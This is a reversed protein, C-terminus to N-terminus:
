ESLELIRNIRNKRSALIELDDANEDVSIPKRGGDHKRAWAVDLKNKIFDEDEVIDHIRPKVRVVPYFKGAYDKRANPKFRIWTTGKPAGTIEGEEKREEETLKEVQAREKEDEKIEKMDLEEPEYIKEKDELIPPPIKGEEPTPLPAPEVEIDEDEKKTGIDEPEKEAPPPADKPTPPPAVPLKPEKEFAKDAPGVEPTKDTEGKSQGTAVRELYLYGDKADTPIIRWMDDEMAAQLNEPLRGRAKVNVKVVTRGDGEPDIVRIFQKSRAWRNWLNLRIRVRGDEFHQQVGARQKDHLVNWEGIEELTGEGPGFVKEVEKKEGPKGEEEPAEEGEDEKVKLIKKMFRSYDSQFDSESLLTDGGIEKFSKLKEYWDALNYTKFSQSIDKYKQNVTQVREELESQVEKAADHAERFEKMFIRKTRGKTREWVNEWIGAQKHLDGAETVKEIYEDILEADEYAGIGDLVDAMSIAEAVSPVFPINNKKQHTM